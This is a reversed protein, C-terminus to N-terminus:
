GDLIIGLPRGIHRATAEKMKGAGQPGLTVSVDFRGANEVAIANRIDGHSIVGPYHRHINRDSKQVTGEFTLGRVPEPEALRLEFLVRRVPATATTPDDGGGPVRGLAGPVDVQPRQAAAVTGLGISCVILMTRM